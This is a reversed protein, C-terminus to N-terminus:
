PLCPRLCSQVSVTTVGALGVRIVFQFLCLYFSKYTYITVVIISKVDTLSCLM